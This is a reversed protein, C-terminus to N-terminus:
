VAGHFIRYLTPPLTGPHNRVAAELAEHVHGLIQWEGQIMSDLGGAVQFLHRTAEQGTKVYLWSSALDADLGHFQSLFNQVRTASWDANHTLTYIETRGCTSLIVGDSVQDRLHTLADPLREKSFSVRERIELPASKHNLGVLMVQVNNEILDNTNPDRPDPVPGTATNNDAPDVPGEESFSFSLAM